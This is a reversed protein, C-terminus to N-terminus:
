RAFAPRDRNLGMARRMFFRKIPQIRNGANLAYSRATIVSRSGSGFAAVFVDMACQMVRAEGVRAREYKRLVRYSGIDRQTNALVEALVAVDTFGLNAGQGALPHLVHAADGALAIRPRLMTEAQGSILPFSTRGSRPSVKGLSSDSAETLFRTFEHDSCQMLKDAYEDNVSWVISCENNRLPLFALPGTGLFWQWATDQHSYETQVRAVIGHQRYSRESYPIEALKRVGSHCGDAGVLLKAQLVQGNNLTAEICNDRLLIKEVTVSIKWHVNEQRLLAEYLSSEIVTNEVIYGIDPHGLDRCTFNIKAEGEVDRVSMAQYPSIRKDQMASWAGVHEFIAKSGPSVATVRADYERSPDFSHPLTGHDVVALVKGQKALLVALTLGVMGGGVIVVDFQPSQDLM